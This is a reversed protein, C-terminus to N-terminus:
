SNERKGTQRKAKTRGVGHESSAPTMDLEPGFRCLCAVQRVVYEKSVARPWLEDCSNRKWLYARYPVM